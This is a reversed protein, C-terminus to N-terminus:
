RSGVRGTPSWMAPSPTVAAGVFAEVPRDDPFLERTADVQLWLGAGLTLLAVMPVFPANYSGFYGVMYGFVLASLASAASGATNMVGFVAGGHSRGVDLCVSALIPQQFLM